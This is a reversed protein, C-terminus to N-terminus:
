TLYHRPSGQHDLPQSEASGTCPNRLEIGPWPAVHWIGCSLDLLTLYFLYIDKKLFLFVTSTQVGLWLTPREGMFIGHELSPTKSCLFSSNRPLYTPSTIQTHDPVTFPLQKLWNISNRDSLVLQASHPLHPASQLGPSAPLPFPAM